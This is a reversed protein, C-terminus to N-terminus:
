PKLIPISKSINISPKKKFQLL